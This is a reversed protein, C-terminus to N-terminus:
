IPRRAAPRVLRDAPPPNPSGFMSTSQVAADQPKPSSSSGIATISDRITSLVTDGTGQDFIALEGGAVPVKQIAGAGFEPDFASSPLVSSRQPAAFVACMSVAVGVAALRFRIM